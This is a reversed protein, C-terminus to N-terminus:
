SSFLFLVSARSVSLSELDGGVTVAAEQANLM